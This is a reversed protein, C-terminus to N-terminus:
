RAGGAVARLADLEAAWKDREARAELVEAELRRVRAELLRRKRAELAARDECGDDYGDAYDKHNM